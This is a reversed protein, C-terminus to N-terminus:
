KSVPNFLHFLLGRPSYRYTVQSAQTRFVMTSGVIKNGSDDEAVARFYYTQDASLDSLVHSFSGSNSLDQESTKSSLSAPANGWEFYATADSWDNLNLTGNLQAQDEGIVTAQNTTVRADVFPEAAQYTCSAYQYTSSGSLTGDNCERVVAQASCQGSTTHESYFTQSDGHSVTVGDLNCDSYTVQSAQTRFVMTSGVIKNGSDDEAVARFYYTQDASLDSLVHSFSGSNSLDQESTKSSLSAPANGWEFYATADSWDNLNLTGNLQAQDEGIVTAQNTTVRADVFPEAAQYTCSAYQYTSSGSLTGDNCERVVAQASCQGSTTHESYFTQSDGHSVTVGDLNCDSYTVQSAQTRFVMTSGVIKNGSDDEAVARFYYTQDASLDSLVHSFSGSNSLDQESTKSSLSAPANGWEFYATADSWDNLNLTGNLQAQDEGIVTAQNTTVRADVFPEAAQYTCSAYQYTSSGSLTGDNCERVVAQASCQGSTTHESYFTQSDGHSVTVGDLNCDSYTVQSAQTRFVEVSGCNITEDDDDEYEVCITYYIRTGEDLNRIDLSYDDRDDLDFDVRAKQLDRGDEDVDRYEDEDEVDEVMDEDEGWVFFVLGNRFDNMDVSGRLEASDDEIEEAEETELDPEDDRSRSDDDTRFNETEGYYIKETDRDEVVARFYYREDEDLDDVVIRFDDDDDDVSKRSTEQDLDDEEEGYEFWAYGRSAGEWELDANLTAEDEQINTARDTEVELNSGSSDSTTTLNGIIILEFLVSFLEAILDSDGRYYAQVIQSQIDDFARDVSDASTAMPLAILIALLGTLIKKKM